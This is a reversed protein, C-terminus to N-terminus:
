LARVLVQRRTQASVSGGSLSAAREQQCSAPLLAGTCGASVHVATAARVGLSRLGGTDRAVESAVSKWDSISAVRRTSAATGSLLSAQCGCLLDMVRPRRALWTASLPPKMAPM